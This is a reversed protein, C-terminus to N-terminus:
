KKRGVIMIRPGLVSEQEVMRAVEIMTKRKKEDAWSADLDPVLWAPGVVGLTEEHILGAEKVEEELEEPKHFYASIFTNTWSPADKRLGTQVEERIMSLYEADFVHGRTLGYILGAYRTIAFGLLRGSPRLVRKAESLARLRDDRDTLHYLPGHMMVVDAFEDPFDLNRADGVKISELETPGENSAQRAQEIHRPVIDILHVNHGLSALWFSYV